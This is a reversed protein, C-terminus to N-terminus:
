ATTLAGLDAGTLGAALTAGTDPDIVVFAGTARQDAYDDVAVPEALQVSVRGIDNLQLPASSDQWCLDDVHWVGQVAGLMARTTKTGVKVLVRQRPAPPREDLWTLVADLQQTTRIPNSTTLVEGRAIDLEDALRLTISDGVRAQELEGTAGDIGVVVSSTGSPYATVSDGVSITGSAVRGALGRYDPHEATRPRIVLQVPLRFPEDVDAIRTPLEELVTLLPLGAYWDPGPAAVNEGTLASIPLIEPASLGVRAAVDRVDDAVQAFREESWDVADMKNIAFVVHPVRLLSLVAAHRRTQASVGGRVDVLVVAADATSAGTVTNRTYQVHGPTDALVFSRRPTAFYRYAVDITIGQEREARLGDTLLALDIETAGRGQSAHLTAEFQDALISKTDHLLRGVLTSKGDDVSGAIVLRLQDRSAVDTATSETITM